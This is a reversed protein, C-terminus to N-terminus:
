RRTCRRRRSNYQSSKLSRRSYKLQRRKNTHKKTPTTPVLAQKEDNKFEVQDANIEWIAEQLEEVNEMNSLNMLFIFDRLKWRKKASEIAREIDDLSKRQNKRATMLWPGIDPERGPEARVYLEALERLERENKTNGRRASKLLETLFDKIMERATTDSYVGYNDFKSESIALSTM